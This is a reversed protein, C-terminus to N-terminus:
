LVSGRSKRRRLWYVLGIVVCCGALLISGMRLNGMMLEENKGFWYGACALVLVWIGAGLGTAACFLPFNMRALGAPLSIYQRIGPLLRGVFMSVSGYRAFFADAKDLSKESVLVYRGYKILFPRGLYLALAYNIAAGLISGVIGSLVILWFNMGGNAAAYAAPPIVVESPFPFFSSELTMLVVIGTYGWQSVTDALWVVFQHFM